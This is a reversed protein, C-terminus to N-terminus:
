GSSAIYRIRIQMDERNMQIGRIYMWSQKTICNCAFMGLSGNCYVTMRRHHPCSKLSTQIRTHLYTLLVSLRTLAMIFAQIEAVDM